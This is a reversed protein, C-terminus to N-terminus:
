KIGWLALWVRMCDFYYEVANYTRVEAKDVIKAPRVEFKLINATM